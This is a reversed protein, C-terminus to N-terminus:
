GAELGADGGFQRTSHFMSLIEVESDDDEGSVVHFVRYGRYMIERLADDQIEPVARGVNPFSRLMEVAAFAGDVFAQAYAPAERALYDGVAELDALAQPSWIVRAM